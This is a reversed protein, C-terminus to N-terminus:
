GSLRDPPLRLWREKLEQLQKRSLKVSRTHFQFRKRHSRVRRREKKYESTEVTSIAEITETLSGPRPILEWAGSRQILRRTAGKQGTTRLLQQNLARFESERENNTRPLDPLDYTHFLGSQYNYTTKDIQRAFEALVLNDQSQRRMDDLYALLAKQVQEGTRTPKDAPDLLESIQHLWTAAQSLNLYNLQFM